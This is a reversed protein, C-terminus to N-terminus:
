CYKALPLGPTRPVKLREFLPFTEVRGMEYVDDRNIKKVIWM